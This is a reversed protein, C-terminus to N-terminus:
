LQYFDSTEMMSSRQSQFKSALSWIQRQGYNLRVQASFMKSVLNSGIMFQTVTHKSWAVIFCIRQCESSTKYQVTHKENRMRLFPKLSYCEHQIVTSLVTAKCSLLRGNSSTTILLYVLYFTQNINDYRRSVELASFADTRQLCFRRWLNDSVTTSRRGVPQRNCETNHWAVHTPLPYIWGM